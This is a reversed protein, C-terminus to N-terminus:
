TKVKDQFMERIVEEAEPEDINIDEVELDDLIQKAVLTAKTRDVALEVQLSDSKIIKGYKTFSINSENSLTIRIIKHKLRDKVLKSLLNDYVLQGSNIIIVRECLSKIDEMYHSTLLITTKNEQNYEKFFERINKQSIIDLGLTPEDLFLIKPQHILSAIIEMKMRQGLSLQRVQINLFDKVDLLSVLRNLHKHYKDEPIEFLEKLLEFSDEAPLDWLLQQKQGMVMGISKKFENKREQPIFGDIAIQGNTPYLIGALMKLTTTKGAGNPGLFGVIEGETINFSVDDVAKTEVKQRKFLGKISGVFGPMKKHRVFVKSLNKVKIISNQM